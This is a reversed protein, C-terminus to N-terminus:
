ILKLYQKLFCLFSLTTKIDNKSSCEAVKNTVMLQKIQTPFGTLPFHETIKGCGFIFVKFYPRM